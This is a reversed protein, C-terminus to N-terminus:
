SASACARVQNDIVGLVRLAQRCGTTRRRRSAAGDPRRRRQGPDDDYRKWATELGLNDYVGGDTLVVDTTIRRRTSTTGTSRPAFGSADVDLECPRFSPPFASSAAVAM